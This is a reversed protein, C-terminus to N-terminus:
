LAFLVSYFVLQVPECRRGRDKRLKMLALRADIELKSVSALNSVPHIEQQGSEPMGSTQGDHLAKQPYIFRVASRTPCRMGLQSRTQIYVAPSKGLTELLKALRVYDDFRRARTGILRDVGDSLWFLQKRKKVVSSRHISGDTILKRERM